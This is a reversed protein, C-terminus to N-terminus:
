ILEYIKPLEGLTYSKLSEGDSDTIYVTYSNQYRRERKISQQHTHQFHNALAEAYNSDYCFFAFSIKEYTYLDDFVYTECIETMVYSCSTKHPTSQWPLQHTKYTEICQGSCDYILYETDWNRDFRKPFHSLSRLFNRDPCYFPFKYNKGVFMYLYQPHRTKLKILEDSSFKVSYKIGINIYERDPYSYMELYKLYNDVEEETFSLSEDYTFYLYLEFNRIGIRKLFNSQFDGRHEQFQLESSKLERYLSNNELFNDLKSM